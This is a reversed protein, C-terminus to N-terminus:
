LPYRFRGGEVLQGTAPPKPRMGQAGLQQRVEKLPISLDSVDVKPPILELKELCEVVAEEIRELFAIIVEVVPSLASVVVTIGLLAYACTFLKGEATQPCFDGYGVTTATVRCLASSCEPTACRVCPPPM